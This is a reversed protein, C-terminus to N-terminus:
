RRRASELQAPPLQWLALACAYKHRRARPSSRSALRLSDASLCCSLSLETAARLFVVICAAANATSSCLAHAASPASLAAVARLGPRGGPYAPRASRSSRHGPMDREACYLAMNRWVCSM